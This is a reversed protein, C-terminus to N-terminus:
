CGGPLKSSSQANLQSTYFENLMTPTFGFQTLLSNYETQLDANEAATANPDSTNLGYLMAMECQAATHAGGDWQELISVAQQFYSTMMIFHNSFNSPVGDIVCWQDVSLLWNNTTFDTQGTAANDLATALGYNIYAHLTEHIAAAAILLQSSNQLMSTNLTITAGTGIGSTEPATQGLMFTGTGSTSWPLAGSQWVLDPKQATTFAQVFNSYLGNTLLKNLILTVACPFAKSLSDTNINQALITIVQGGASGSPSTTYEYQYTPNDGMLYYLSYYTTSTGSPATITVEALQGGLNPDIYNPDSPDTTTPDTTGSDGTGTDTAGSGDDSTGTDGTGGAGADSTSDDDDGGDYGDGTNGGSEKPAENFSIGGASATSNTPLSNNSNNVPIAALGNAPVLQPSSQNTSRTVKSSFIRGNKFTSERRNTENVSSVVISSSSSANSSKFQVWRAHAVGNKKSYFLFKTDNSKSKIKLLYAKDNQTSVTTNNWDMDNFETSSAHAKLVSYATTQLISKQNIATLENQREDKHCGNLCLFFVILTM